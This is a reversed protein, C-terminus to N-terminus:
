GIQLKEATAADCRERLMGSVVLAIQPYDAGLVHCKAGSVGVRHVRSEGAARDRAKCGDEVPCVILVEEELVGVADDQLDDTALARAQTACGRAFSFWRLELLYM